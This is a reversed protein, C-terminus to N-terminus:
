GIEYKGEKDIKVQMYTEPWERTVGGICIFLSPDKSDIDLCELRSGFIPKRRYEKAPTEYLDGKFLGTNSLSIRIIRSSVKPKYALGRARYSLHLNIDVELPWTLFIFESKSTLTTNYGYYVIKHNQSDQSDNFMIRDLVVSNNKFSTQGGM